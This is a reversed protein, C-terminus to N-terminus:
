RRPAIVTAQDGGGVIPSGGLPDPGFRNPGATGRLFGCIVLLALGGVVPVLALLIWWASMNRDHLRKAYGALAPWILALGIVLGVLSVLLALIGTFDIVEVIGIIIQMAISIGVIVLFYNLWFTQRPIRGEFSLWRKLDFNRIEQQIDFAM